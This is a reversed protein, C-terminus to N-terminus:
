SVFMLWDGGRLSSVQTSSSAVGAYERGGGVEEEEEEEEARGEEEDRIVHLDNLREIL